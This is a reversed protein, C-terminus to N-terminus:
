GLRKSLSEVRKWKEEIQEKTLKGERIAELVAAIVKSALHPDPKFGEVGKAALDFNSFILMDVGAQLAAVVAASLDFGEANTSKEYGKKRFKKQVAGMHMDDSVIVGRYGFARLKNLVVPSMTAPFHKDWKRNFIHATMVCDVDGGAILQAFPEMEMDQYTSTVDIMDEHTDGKASGHGPFHKIATLVGAKRHERVIAAAREVVDRVNKGLSRQLGSIVPSGLDLDVCPAFNLNFGVEAIENALKRSEIAVEKVSLSGLAAASPFDSFGNSSKLRQVKGGEQDVAMFLKVRSNKQLYQNLTLTQKPNIINRSFHIVGGVYGQRLDAEFAKLFDDSPETGLFGIILLQGIKQELSIMALSQGRVSLLRFHPSHPSEFGRCGTGCVPARVLQAVDAM